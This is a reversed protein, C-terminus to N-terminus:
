WGCVIEVRVIRVGNRSDDKGDQVADPCYPMAVEAEVTWAMGGVLVDSCFGM